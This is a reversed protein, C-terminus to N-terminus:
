REMNGKKGEKEDSILREVSQRCVGTISEMEYADRPQRKEVEKEIM